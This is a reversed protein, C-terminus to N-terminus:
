EVCERLYALLSSQDYNSIFDAVQWQGQEADYAMVLHIPRNEGFDSISTTVWASDSTQRTITIDGLKPQEFDQANIWYDYDILIEQEAVEKDVCKNLATNFENTVYQETPFEKDQLLMSFYLEYIQSVRQKLLSDASVADTIQQSDDSTELSASQAEAESGSTSSSSQGGCSALMLLATASILLKKM